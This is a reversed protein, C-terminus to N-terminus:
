QLFQVLAYLLFKVLAYLLIQVLAYLLFAGFESAQVDSCGYLVAHRCWDTFQFLRKRSCSLTAFSQM